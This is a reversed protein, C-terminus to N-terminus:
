RGASEHLPDTQFIDKPIEPFFADGDLQAFVRTM